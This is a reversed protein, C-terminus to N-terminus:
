FNNYFGSRDNLQVGHEDVWGSILRAPTRDFYINRVSVHPLSQTQAPSLEVPDMEELTPEPLHAPRHKFSEACVYVPVQHDHAALALVYTGAKNIVSGDALVSDAGLLAIDAQPVFLGLQADTILTTSIAWESLRTAVLRGEYLPRSETVIV